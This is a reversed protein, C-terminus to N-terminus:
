PLTNTAGTYYREIAVVDGIDVAGDGNADARRLQESTYPLGTALDPLGLIIREVADVDHADVFGDMNVDGVGNSPAPRPTGPTWQQKRTVFYIIAAVGAILLGIGLRQKM